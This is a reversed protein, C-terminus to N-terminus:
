SATRPLDSTPHQAPAEPQPSESRAEVAYGCHCYKTAISLLAQCSPCTRPRATLAAMVRDAQESQAARFGPSATPQEVGQPEGASVSELGAADRAAAVRSRQTELQARLERLEYVRRMVQLARSFDEPQAALEERARNLTDLAQELRAALYAEFLEEDTVSAPSDAVDHEHEPRAPHGTDM